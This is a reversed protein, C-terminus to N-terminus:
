IDTIFTILGHRRPTALIMKAERGMSNQRLFSPTDVYHSSFASMFHLTTM